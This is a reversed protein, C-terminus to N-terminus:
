FGPLLRSQVSSPIIGRGTQFLVPQITPGKVEASLAIAFSKRQDFAGFADGCNVDCGVSCVNSTKKDFCLARSYLRCLVVVLLRAHM